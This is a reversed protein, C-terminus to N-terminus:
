FVAPRDGFFEKIWNLVGPRRETITHFGAPVLHIDSPEFQSKTKKDTM